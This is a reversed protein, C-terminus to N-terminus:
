ERKLAVALPVKNLTKRSLNIAIYYSVLLGLLGIMAMFPSITIPISMQVDSVLLSVIWKLLYIMAPISLLYAIIVIPTYINLVIGSIKKNKYGMVKMLSITKKNEEVVINAIVAIIILAMLSAFAIVIYISSNITQMQREMSERLDDISFISNIVDLEESSLNKMKNYKSDTSYKQNFGTFPLGLNSSLKERDVYSSAGMFSEQIGVINYELNEKGNKFIIKDGVDLELVESTNQNIIISNECKLLKSLDKDNKDKIEIYHSNQDIGTLTISYDKENLKKKKGTKDKLNIVDLSTSLILDDKDDKSSQINNYSIMYKYKFSSFTKDIMFNFLNSGILILVLLLGTCFSTIFVIFLKGLSRFALSYKFRYHFPLKSTLKNSIKSLLNVKLNSGEKLLQLPKKRLMFISILYTLVSLLIMPLFVSNILYEKNFTFTSLPVNFYNLYFKALVGHLGIGILYGLLGGILSGIIPYVLYSTAIISSKYGLSKLVGIQLREDEIRKKAIIIIIVVSIALLLYLFYDAFNRDTEFELQMMDIRLTRMITSMSITLKDKNEEFIKNAPNNTSPPLENTEDDDNTITIEMRKKADTKYNFKAVYVDDKIGSFNNYEEETLFVINNYREDFIPVNFSIMPYIHDPAYAYGVIKYKIDNLKYYGGIKLNNAKAFKPLVTIENNNKPFRGEVLFPKNITKKNNYPLAKISFKEESLIKAREINYNFDYKNKLNDLKKAALDYSINYKDMINQVGLYLSQNCMEKNGNLCNSYLDIIQKEELTINSLKNNKINNLEDITIDTEYNIVPVFSFDEVNQEDLYNYYKDELRDLASNMSTYIGTSLLVLFIIGIMQIKKKKLGKLANIFLLGM